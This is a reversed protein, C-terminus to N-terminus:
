LAAALLEDFDFLFANDIETAPGIARDLSTLLSGNGAATVRDVGGQGNVTDNGDEGLLSDNDNGGLLSDNGASGLLTDRGAAGNLTDNGLGGRIADDGADGLLSDNGDGGDIIDDGNGGSLTDNGLDGLLVDNGTEGFLSDTGDGGLLTDNNNGGRLTDNGIGGILRDNGAGGTLSDNGDGGNLEVPITVTSGVLVRDNGNGAEVLVRNVSAFDGLRRSGAAVRLLGSSLRSINLQDAQPTGAVFLLQAGPQTPDPLLQAFAQALVNVTLTDTSSVAGDRDTATVIVQHQGATAFQHTVSAGSQGEVTQDVAGDGDWDIDFTFGAAQDASSPDNATLVFQQNMGIATLTPGTVDATPAVNQVTIELTTEGSMAPSGNDTAIVTVLYLDEGSSDPALWTIEGTTANIALGSPANTGLSYTLSQAPSDSDTATVTVNLSGAENVEIPAVAAFVPAQNVPPPPPPDVDDDAQSAAFDLLARLQHAESLPTTLDQLVGYSGYVHVIDLSTFTYEVYLDVGANRAGNLLTQYVDYMEPSQMAAQAAEGAGYLFFANPYGMVHAGAEYSVFLLDRDLLDEYQEVLQQHEQLRALSWPISIEYIADIIEEPTSTEDFAESMEYSIDAYATASIADVRGAVNALITATLDANAQQGAVVRVIRDEQGAFVDSWLDFDRVIEQGAVQFFGLGANEPLTMQANLWQNVAFIGNWFENSWEVYATLDPNLTDRVLTAFNQVYEDNAMHPMNFWPNAGLENALAIMHEISVGNTHFYQTLDGDSQTAHDWLRRDSWTEIDSEINQQFQMFRITDFGQLRELFLPHFPSETSGPQWHDGVFSEGNYDPMWLDINRIPNAPNTSRIEMNFFENAPMNVLAYHRGEPTMGTETVFPMLLEGEGDWQATYIGAPQNAGPTFIATAAVQQYTNGNASLWTPLSTVWGHDNVSLEPGDGVQFQYTQEGTEVNLARPTWPRARLFADKFVYAADWDVHNSLNMGIRMVQESPNPDLDPDTSANPDLNANGGLFGLLFSDPVEGPDTLDAGALAAPVDPHAYRAFEFGATLDPNFPEGPTPDNAIGPTLVSSNQTFPDFDSAKQWDTYSVLGVQLTQPMDPRSYRRHVQWDQGPLQYLTIISNGIRAIQVTATNATPGLPTLELQSNSNRTTKVELSFENPGAGYGLSLFVYNEGNNTGDDAMSGPQWDTAPNTIDRPTRIMAGALSFQGDGPVDDPDSGGIDDRDTIHVETTFVFDGTVNQFRMPGRWNQYWVSSHPQQVMRGPQSGNISLENLQAAAAGWGETQHVDHWNALTTADGFEDSLGAIPTAAM